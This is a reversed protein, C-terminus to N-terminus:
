SDDTKRFVAEHVHKDNLYFRCANAYEQKCILKNCTMIITIYYSYCLIISDNQDGNKLIFVHLLWNYSARSMNTKVVSIYGPHQM